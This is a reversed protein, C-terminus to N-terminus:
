RPAKVGLRRKCETCNDSSNDNGTEVPGFYFGYKRCLSMSGDFWHAKRSGNPFAWGQPVIANPDDPM